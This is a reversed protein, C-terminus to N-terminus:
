AHNGHRVEANRHQEPHTILTMPEPTRGTRDTVSVVGDVSRCLRLVIPVLHPAEITGSLVVRGQAVEVGVAAPSVGAVHGLVEEVIDQRIARDDRLFAKLLDGRSVLGVLRGEGDVVPLRKIHRGAMLRAAAVVTAGPAVCVAPSTMLQQATAAGARDPGGAPPPQLATPDEQASQTRLLDAESVIGVPRDADDVVPVATIGYAHLLEVIARFGTAPAVRVVDRTMVDRVTRHTLM